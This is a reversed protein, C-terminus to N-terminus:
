NKKKPSDFSRPCVTKTRNTQRDMVEVKVLRQVMLVMLFQSKTNPTCVGSILLGKLDSWNPSQQWLLQYLAECVNYWRCVFLTQPYIPIAKDAQGDTQRDLTWFQQRSWLKEMVLKPPLNDKVSTNDMVWPHTMDKFPLWIKLTVTCVHVTWVM